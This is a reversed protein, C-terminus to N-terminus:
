KGFIAKQCDPQKIENHLDVFGFDLEKYNWIAHGIKNEDLLQRVDLLWAAADAADAANIVGFEGCYLQKGSYRVFDLADKLLIKMTDKSVEKEMAVHAYKPIYERNELLFETFDSISDPYHIKRHFATMEESFHAQQHTFVQPDYFHFNYFVNEDELLELEKLRFPSNQENSGVLIYRDKDITRIANITAKYLENWLYGSGDSVENLLEFMLVPTKRKKFHEALMEWIGIFKQRLGEEALLPMPKDMMGYINGEAHHLDLIVNLHYKECWDLCKDLYEFATKCDILSEETETLVRYDIPLRIHDLGWSAIQAINEEKIFSQLHAELEERNKPSPNFCDYQALWGGINIGNGFQEYLM